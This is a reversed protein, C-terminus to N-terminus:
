FPRKGIKKNIEAIIKDKNKEFAATGITSLLQEGGSFDPPEVQQIALEITIDNVRGEVYYKGAEKTFRAEAAVTAKVDAVVSLDLEGNLQGTVKFRGTAAIVGQMLDNSLDFSKVEVALLQEPEVARVEGQFTTGASFKFAKDKLQKCAERTVIKSLSALTKDDGCAAAATLALIVLIAIAVHGLRSREM